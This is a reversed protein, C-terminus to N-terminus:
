RLAAVQVRTEEGVREAIELLEEYFGTGGLTDWYEKGILVCEDSTFNFLKKPPGWAYDSSNEGYPNYYLGYYVNANPYALKLKLLDRKAEATQDINPKVTKISMFNDKGNKEWWLDSIVRLNQKDSSPIIQSLQTIDAGWNAVQGSNRNRLATIHHEIANLQALSLNVPTSRQTQAQSAGGSIAAAKSITEIVRQGFSTSFSREFRSWFLATESLLARHFPRHTDEQSLRHVTQTICNRFEQEILNACEPKM